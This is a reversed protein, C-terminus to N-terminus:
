RVIIIRTFKYGTGAAEEANGDKSITLVGNQLSAPYYKSGLNVWLGENYFVPFSTDVGAPFNPLTMEVQSDNEDFTLSAARLVLMMWNPNEVTYVEVDTAQGKTIAPVYTKKTNLTVAGTIKTPILITSFKVKYSGASKYPLIKAINITNKDSIWVKTITAYKVGDSLVTVLATGERSKSFPLDAVTLTMPRIGAYEGATTDVTFEGDLVLLNATHYEKVQINAPVVGFNTATITLM